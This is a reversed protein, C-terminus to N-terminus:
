SKHIVLSRYFLIFPKKKSESKRTEKPKTTKMKIETQMKNKPFIKPSFGKIKKKRWNGQKTGVVDKDSIFIFQIEFKFLNSQM